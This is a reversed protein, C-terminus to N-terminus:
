PENGELRRGKPEPLYMDGYQDHGPPYEREGEDEDAEPEEGLLARIEDAIEMVTKM